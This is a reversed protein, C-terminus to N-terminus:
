TLFHVAFAGTSELGKDCDQKGMGLELGVFNQLFEIFKSFSDSPM